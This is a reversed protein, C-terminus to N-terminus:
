SWFFQISVNGICNMACNRYFDICIWNILPIQTLTSEGEIEWKVIIINISKWTNARTYVTQRGLHIWTELLWPVRYFREEAYMLCSRWWNFLFLRGSRVLSAHQSLMSDSVHQHMKIAFDCSCTKRAWGAVKVKQGKQRACRMEEDVFLGPFSYSKQKLYLENWFMSTILLRWPSLQSQWFFISAAEFVGSQM